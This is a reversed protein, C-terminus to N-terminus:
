QRGQDKKRKRPLRPSEAKQWSAVLVRLSDSIRLPFLDYGTGFICLLHQVNLIEFVKEAQLSQMLVWILINSKCQCLVTKLQRDCVERYM